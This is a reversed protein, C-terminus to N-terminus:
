VTTGSMDREQTGVDCFDLRTTVGWLWSQDLWALLVLPSRRDPEEKPLNRGFTGLPGPSELTCALDM